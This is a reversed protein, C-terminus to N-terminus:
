SIRSEERVIKKVQTKYQDGRDEYDQFMDFSSCGPSLLVVEGPRAAQWASQVAKELDEVIEMECSGELEQKMRGSAAGYLFLQRVHNRLFEQLPVYTGGKDKGGALLIIPCDFAELACIVSVVTTAKSDNYFRVGRQELVFELRHELGEFTEIAEQVREPSAGCLRAVTLAVMINELNHRGVLRINDLSYREEQREPNLQICITNGNLRIEPKPDMGSGFRLVSARVRGTQRNLWPDHQPIVAFDEERQNLFVRFKAEAYAEMDPYRDLHDPSLNTWASIWPRFRSITELQFSSVETLFVEPYRPDPDPTTRNLFESLPRGINGGTWHSIEATELIHHILFVTTTKGNTGTIAILPAKVYRFALEMEGIVEIGAALAEELPPLSLPVGPSIVILDADLFDGKGQNGLRFTCGAESLRDIVGGLEELSKNDSCSVRAGKGCLFRAVAEGSRGMGVIEVKRGKLDLIWGKNM